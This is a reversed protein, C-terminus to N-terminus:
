SEKRKKPALEQAKRWVEWLPPPIVENEFANLLIRLTSKLLANEAILYPKSGPKM